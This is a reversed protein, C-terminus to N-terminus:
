PRKMMKAANRGKLTKMAADAERDAEKAEADKVAQAAALAAEKPTMTRMKVLELDIKPGHRGEFPSAMLRGEFPSEM